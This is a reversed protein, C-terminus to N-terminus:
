ENVAMKLCWGQVAFCYYWSILLTLSSEVFAWGRSNLLPAFGHEIVLLSAVM